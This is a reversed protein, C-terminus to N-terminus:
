LDSFQPLLWALDQSQDSTRTRDLTESLLSLPLPPLVLSESIRRSGRDAITYAIIESKAVDVIWYEAVGM